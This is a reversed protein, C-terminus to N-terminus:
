RERGRKTLALGLLTGMSLLHLFFFYAYAYFDM